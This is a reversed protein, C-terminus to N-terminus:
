KIPETKGFTILEPEGQRVVLTVVCDRAQRLRLLLKSEALTVDMHIKESNACPTLSKTGASEM